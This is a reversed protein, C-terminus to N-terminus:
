FVMPKIFCLYVASAQILIMDLCLTAVQIPTDNKV